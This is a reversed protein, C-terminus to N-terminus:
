RIQGVALVDSCGGHVWTAMPHECSHVFNLFRQAERNDRPGALGTPHILGSSEPLKGGFVFICSEGEFRSAGVVRWCPLEWSGSISSKTGNVLKWPRLSHLDVLPKM